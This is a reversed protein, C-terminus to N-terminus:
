PAASVSLFILSQARAAKDKLSLSVRWGQGSFQTLAFSDPHNVIEAGGLESGPGFCAVIRAHMEDLRAYAEASRYAFTWYCTQQVGGEHLLSEICTAGSLGARADGGSLADCFSDALTLGPACCLCILFLHYRM